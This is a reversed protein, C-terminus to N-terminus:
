NRVVYLVAKRLLDTIEQIYVEVEDKIVGEDAVIVLSNRYTSDWIPAVEIVVNGGDRRVLVRVRSGYLEVVSGVM